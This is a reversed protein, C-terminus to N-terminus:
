EKVTMILRPPLPIDGKMELSTEEEESTIQIQSDARLYPTDLAEKFGLLLLEGKMPERFIGFRAQLATNKADNLTLYKEDRKIRYTTTPQELKPQLAIMTMGESSIFYQPQFTAMPIAKSPSQPHPCEAAITVQMSSSAKSQATEIVLGLTLDKKDTINFYFSRDTLGKAKELPELVVESKGNRVYLDKVANEHRLFSLKFNAGIENPARLHEYLLEVGKFKIRGSEEQLSFEEKADEAPALSLEGSWTFTSDVKMGQFSIKAQESPTKYYYPSVSVTIDRGQNDKIKYEKVQALLRADTGSDDLAPIDFSIYATQDEYTYTYLHQITAEQAYGLSGLLIGSLLLILSYRM